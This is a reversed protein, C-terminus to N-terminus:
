VQLLIEARVVAEQARILIGKISFHRSRDTSPQSPRGKLM